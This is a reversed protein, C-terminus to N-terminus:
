RKAPTTPLRPAPSSAKPTRCRRNECSLGRECNGEGACSEGDRSLRLTPPEALFARLLAVEDAEVTDLEAPTRPPEWFRLSPDFLQRTVVAVAHGGELRLILTDRTLCEGMGCAAQGERTRTLILGRAADHFALEFGREKLAQLARETTAKATVPDFTGHAPRPTVRPAACASALVSLLALPALLAAIPHISPTRM